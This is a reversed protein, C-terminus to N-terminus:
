AASAPARRGRGIERLVFALTIGLAIATAPLALWAVGALAFVLFLPAYVDRKVFPQLRAVLGAPGGRSLAPALMTEEFALLTRAHVKALLQWYLLSVTVIDLVVAAMGTWLLVPSAVARFTGVTLGALYLANTLDDCVTDLWQGLHSGQFKMRALEGDVGDLVSALLFLSAAGVFGARTGRAALWGSGAGVVLTGVTVANPHVPLPALVASIALSVSRDLTRAFWGDTSKRLSERIARRARRRGSASTVDERYLPAAPPGASAAPGDGCLMQRLLEPHYVQRGDIVLRTGAPRAEAELPWGSVVVDPLRRDRRRTELHRSVVPREAEGCALRVRGAGVSCLAMLHREVVPLGAVRALVWRGDSGPASLNM